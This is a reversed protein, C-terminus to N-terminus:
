KMGAIYEKKQPVYFLNNKFINWYKKTQPGKKCILQCTTEVTILIMFRALYINNTESLKKLSLSGYWFVHLYVSFLM